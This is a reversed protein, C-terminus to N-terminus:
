RLLCSPVAELTPAKESFTSSKPVEWILLGQNGPHSRSLLTPIAGVVPETPDERNADEVAPRAAFQCSIKSTVVVAM